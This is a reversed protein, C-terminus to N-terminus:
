EATDYTRVMMVKSSGVAYHKAAIEQSSDAKLNTVKSVYTIGGVYVSEESMYFKYFVRVCPINKGTLNTVRLSGDAMEEVKVQEEAMGFSEVEACEASIEYTDSAEYPSRNAEQVVVSAGAPLTSVKFLMQKSGIKWTIQAYEVETKGTNTVLMTCVDKVDEDSGDELYGGEYSSIKKVVLNTNPIQYPLTRDTQQQGSVANSDSGGHASDGGTGDGTETGDQDVGDGDTLIQDPDRDDANRSRGGVILVAVAIGVALLFIGVGLWIKKKRNKM